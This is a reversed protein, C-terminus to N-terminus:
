KKMVMETYRESGNAIVVMYAGTPLQQLDFNTQIAGPALKKQVMAVGNMNHITCQEQGTAPQHKITLTSTVPNPYMNVARYADNESNVVVISSYEYRGNNDVQKLRYYIKGNRPNRQTYTYNKTVFSQGAAKVSDIAYFTQGDYSTEIVFRNLQQELSTQWNLIVQQQEAYGKFFNMKAPLISGLSLTQNNYAVFAIDSSGSLRVRFYAIAAVNSSNIGFASFDAAWLRMIRDTKTFGADLTMPNTNANYFDATWNGLNM